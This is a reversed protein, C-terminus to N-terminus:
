KEEDFGDGLGLESGSLESSSEKWKALKVQLAQRSIGLSESARSRNGGHDALRAEIVKKEYAAIVSKLAGTRPVTASADDPMTELDTGQMSLADVDILEGDDTLIVAREIEHELQRINGKWEHRRLMEMARATFGSIYRGYRSCTLGRFREALLEIDGDRERLPPLGVPFVNLRYFLDERFRGADVESRLDKNTAAVIRVNVQVPQSSGVPHFEREQLVRLLQVQVTPSIEGIEDLFITGGDATEFLGKRATEAGTFAGKVHGFLESSLLQESIAGCNVAVFSTDRRKSYAHVYRAALEKGTGTEGTILVSTDTVAVRKLQNLARLLATSEGIIPRDVAKEAGLQERHEELDAQSKRFARFRRASIFSATMYTSLITLWDLLEPGFIGRPSEIVLVGLSEGRTLLPVIAISRLGVVSMSAEEPNPKYVIVESAEVARSLLTESPRSVEAAGTAGHAQVEHWEGEPSIMWLRVLSTQPFTDLITKAAEVFVEDPTEQTSSRRLLDFLAAQSDTDGITKLIPLGGLISRSGVVTAASLTDELEIALIEIVVPNQLDGLLLQDGVELKVPVAASIIHRQGNREVLSGNRSDLDEFVLEGKRGVFRGHRSSIKSEPIVIDNGGVRGVTFMSGEYMVSDASLTPVMLELRM